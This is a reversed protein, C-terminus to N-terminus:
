FSDKNKVLWDSFSMLNKNLTKTLENEKKNTQYYVFMATLDEIGSFGFTAFKEVTMQGDVFVKPELSKNMLAMYESQTLMEASVDVITNLKYETPNNFNSTVCEGIDEVSMSYMPVNNMPLNFLFKNEELKHLFIKFSEFFFPM